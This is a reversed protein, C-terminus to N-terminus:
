EEDEATLLATGEPIVTFAFAQRQYALLAGVVRDQERLDPRKLSREWQRIGAEFCTREETTMPNVM